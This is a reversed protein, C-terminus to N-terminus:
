KFNGLSAAVQAAVEEGEESSPLELAVQPLKAAKGHAAEERRCRQRPGWQALLQRGELGEQGAQVWVIGGVQAVLGGHELLERLQQRGRRHLGLVELLMESGLVTLTWRKTDDSSLLTDRRTCHKQLCCGSTTALPKPLLEGVHNGQM